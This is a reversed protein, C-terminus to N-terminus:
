RTVRIRKLHSRVGNSLVLDLQSKATSLEVDGGRALSLVQGTEADRVMVMPHASANWRLAVRGGGVRRVTVSDGAGSTQSLALAERGQGAVRISSIQAAKSAPLPVTFAFNQQNGGADAVENPSFSLAFLTSGDDARGQLTYPGARGPLSPRANVQFAPELVVEGNRIHGWVLLSPQVAQSAIGTFPPSPNLLYNLVGRYTYDSIWKNPCYAMIDSDTPPELTPTPTLNVGYTGTSGDSHPYQPDLGAPGGCPAHNRGWNHGLEHAAVVSGSPLWDWGLAARAGNGATNGPISVYAVGAVGSTYTVHAVGYYYKPSSEALRVADIEGLITGWAGNGNDDELTDLSFTTYDAHVTANYSAIPHMQQTTQLYQAKNADTVNGRVRGSLPIGKQLLPIFVVDLPPVTRVDMGLSGTAPFLNDSESTELPFVNTPDVEAQIRFFPQILSGPVSVNWSYTLSSEDPVTPTSTALPPPLITASDLLTAGNYYRVRVSPTVSNSRDALVFVRLYGNRSKVLPVSGGYNQASQTLYMGAIRFNISGDDPPPTYTVSATATQRAQVPVAQVSPSATHNSGGTPATDRATVTYSGPTLAVLTTTTTVDQSYSDPGTVTVAANSATGLGSINITLNGSAISYLISAGAPTNSGHVAVTQTPPSPAYDTSGVMIDNAAVTYTGPTLQSFTQTATVPQSFGGPGSVTIAASSGGPLGNVTVVLSGESPGGPDSCGLAAILILWLPRLHAPLRRM